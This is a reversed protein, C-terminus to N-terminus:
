QCRANEMGAVSLSHFTVDPTPCTLTGVVRYIEGHSFGWRQGVGGGAPVAAVWSSRFVMNPFWSFISRRLMSPGTYFYTGKQLLGIATVSTTLVRGKVGRPTAIMCKPAGSINPPGIWPDWLQRSRNYTFIHCPKTESWWLHLLHGCNM